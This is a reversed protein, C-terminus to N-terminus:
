SPDKTGHATFQGLKLVAYGTKTKVLTLGHFRLDEAIQNLEDTLPKRQPPPSTHKLAADWARWCGDKFDENGWHANDYWDLFAVPEQQAPQTIAQKMQEIGALVGASFGKQYNMWNLEFDEDTLHEQQVPAPIDVVDIDDLQIKPECEGICNTKACIYCTM